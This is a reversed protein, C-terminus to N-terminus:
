NRSSSCCAPVACHRPQRGASLPASPLRYPWTSKRPVQSIVAGTAPNYGASHRGSNGDQERGNIYHSLTKTM